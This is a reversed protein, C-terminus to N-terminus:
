DIGIVEKVISDFERELDLVTYYMFPRSRVGKTWHWRDDRNSYYWWGKEGHANVDYVWGEPPIPHPSGQGVIGTGFEVYVAYVMDARIIGVSSTEDFLGVISESLEGTSVIGLSEVHYRAIRVGRDVMAKILTNIKGDLMSKYQELQKIITNLGKTEVKIMTM